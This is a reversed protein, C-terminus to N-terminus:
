ASKFRDRYQGPTMGEHKRFSRIFNQPNNYRLKAAIDKIAIDSEALWKKAMKFRYMTLYDSFSVSTEKRFVSSLYNANYHLRAACEELTLDTDYYQQVLDIIKESLKHYQEEQRDRYIVVLPQIVTKWFWREIEQKHQIKLLQELLSGQQHKLQKLTIGSEQMSIILNNLLRTLPFQFEHPSRDSQFVSHLLQTLLEKAREEEAVKIADLLEHELQQPYSLQLVHRHENMQDYQIIIGAGLIMRHKLADLGERYASGIGGLEYFPASIGISIQLNLLQQVQRQLSETLSYQMSHFVDAEQEASGIIVVVSQDLIIPALRQEAPIWEEVVNHLAFLLLDIDQITHSSAAHFDIQITMGAMTHWQELQKGYGFQQLQTRMEGAKIQGQYAKMFFLTRVQHIHQKVQHELESKSQFLEHVRESILQFENTSRELQQDEAQQDSGSIQLLLRRVPSYFQKTGLWVFLFCLVILGICIYLTYQGIKKSESTLAEISSISMYTWGTLSSKYYTVASSIQNIQTNYQGSMENLAALDIGAEDIKQGILSQDTHVLINHQEDFIIVKSSSDINQEVMEQLTCTPITALALGYTDLSNAPLQKVLTINYPCLATNRSFEESYFLYSPTLVWSSHEPVHILESLQEAYEYESLEYLGSNKILWNHRQNLLIVDELRTDFSQMHRIENRLDDYLMFDAANLTQSMARKLVTSALVQNMTHNVTTLKQEVNSNIQMILQMKGENVNKQIENSATVYAFIGIFIVPITSLLCGFIILKTLYNLSRM